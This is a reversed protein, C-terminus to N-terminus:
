LAIYWSRKHLWHAVGMFLAVGLLAYVFGAEGQSMWGELMHYSIYRKLCMYQGDGDEGHVRAASADPEATTLTTLTSDLLEHAIYIVISNMGMRNFPVLLLRLAGTAAGCLGGEAGAGAGEGEGPGAAGDGEGDRVDFDGETRVLVALMLMAISSTVLVYSESWLIKNVPIVGVGALLLGALGCAVAYGVLRGQLARVPPPPPQQQPTEDGERVLLPAELVMGDMSSSSPVGAGAMDELQQTKGQGQQTQRAAQPQARAAAQRKRHQMMARGVAVGLFCHLLSPLVGFAGNSDVGMCRFEARCASYPGGQASLHSEGVLLRDIYGAAGGACDFNLQSTPDGARWTGPGLYGRSDGFGGDWACDCDTSTQNVCNCACSPVPLTFVILLYVAQVALVAAWQRKYDSLEPLLDASARNELYRKRVSQAPPFAVVVAVTAVYTAGLRGLVSPIRLIPLEFWGSGFNKIVLGWFVMKVFRWVVQKMLKWRQTRMEAGPLEAIRLLRKEMAVSISLGMAFVFLPCVVDNFHLGNWPSHSLQLYGSFNWNAVIMGALALGRLTDVSKIRQSAAVM